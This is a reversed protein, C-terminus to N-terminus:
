EVVTLTEGSTHGGFEPAYASQVTAIGTQYTGSRDLHVTYELTHTGKRLQDIFFETSADRSIQYAGLGNMWRYGSIQEDPEMCSARGDKIHIFDMDRDAKVTLRVTIKDGIHLVTKPTVSKGNVYYARSISVGNGKADQIKDMDELYQAYVAGWGIGGGQKSVKVTKTQTDKGTYSKRTYGLIDDPTVLEEKGIRAKMSGTVNLKNGSLCLFAYIADATAVPTNWGQVQKQKLLWQKMENLFLTDPAIRQIAEMAAVQTPIKYSNWSYYAKPTDYYRGMEPTSVSYEKVSQILIKAEDTKNQKQMVTAIIAKDYISYSASRDTLKSVMYANISKDAKKEADSDLACIYLYHITQNSPIVSKMGNREAQKMQKYEENVEKKLYNLASTYMTNMATEPKVGMAKLRAMMETIQTTIYRNPYMGKFWSWAGGDLQLGQLKTLVNQQNANMANLDFLMAIRYKQEKESGAEKLWPTEEILVNKLDQNKELNSLLTQKDGGQIQWMKFVEQIRPNQKVIETALANAYYASALSLADDQTPNGVVPLAQVVYWDPNATLEVTLKRDTATPSQHNFVDKLGVEKEGAGNLQVPITETVWQKDTLVPLYHQEGDTYNGADAMVKCVLVDYNDPVTFAFRVTQTEGEGVTFKQSAHFVEKETVPDLLQIHATGNVGEMAMNILSAAIVTKDGKRVFRPLNPQVMFRKSSKAKASFTCYDVDQTHAFGWLKWETLADPVTFVISVNGLSDTRLNPYFFATEAFNERLQAQPMPTDEVVEASNETIQLVEEVLSAASGTVRKFGSESEPIEEEVQAPVYKVEVAMNSDEVSSMTMDARASAVMVQAYNGRGRIRISRYTHVWYLDSYDGYLLDLGSGGGEVYLDSYLRAAQSGTLMQVSASPLFRPFYLSFGWKHEYLKDLSADYMTTMLNAYVPNGSKDTMHLRWEEKAGTELKDRFTEWAVNLHKDPRVYALDVRRTFLEGNRIFAFGISIGDGYEPKYSYEFKKLENDLMIRQSDIRKNGSYVDVLMYVDKEATGVYLTVPKGYQLENVDQYFWVVDKVPSVKDESSFLVFKQEATCKRGQEDLADVEILYRGSPLALLGEPVFAQNSVAKGEYKMEGKDGKEDLAFVHYNVDVKVPQEKLNITQFQIKEQKERLINSALGRINLVISQRSVPLTLESEHTEGAGDTVEVKVDFLYLARADEEWNLDEPPTLTVDLKFKGDADTQIEGTDLTEIDMRPGFYWSRKSRIVEYKVKAQRVPAGAFTMADGTVQLTDGMNYTGEYPKFAVDFTPRKYEEVRILTSANDTSIYYTGPMLDQPLIFDTHLVGFDDTTVEREAVDRSSSYLKIEVSKWKQVYASDGEQYGVVGSVHVTQGPRYLARDTFLRVNSRVEEKYDGKAWNARNSFDDPAMFDNGSTRVNFYANYSPATPCIAVGKADTKYVKQFTYTYDNWKYQVIEANPVPHGTLKDVAIMESKKGEVPLIMMQYPSVYLISYATGRSLGQPVQKLMYIGAAPMKYSIVTDRIMYDDTAELRYSQSSVKKGYNKVLQEDRNRSYRYLASATPSLNLRYLEFTVGNLNAYSLKVDVEKEPYIFPIEARLYPNTLQNIHKQLVAAAPAKPYKKIGERALAVAKVKDRQNSYAIVLKVYVDSVVDVDKYEEILSELGKIYEDSTLSYKKFERMNNYQFYLKAEKTLLAATRNDNGYWSILRDFIDLCEVRADMRDNGWTGALANIARRALLDYMTDGWYTISLKGSITMPRFDKAPKKGWEDKGEFSKRFYGIATQIDSANKQLILSGMLSNLVARAMPDKEEQAWRQLREREVEASDPTLAVQYESRTLFAKMMQPLNREAEAKRYIADVEALVSKPLDQKQLTEVKKWLGDYQQAVAEMPLMMGVLLLSLIIKKMGMNM